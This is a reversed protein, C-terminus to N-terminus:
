EIYDDYITIVYLEEGDHLENSRGIIIATDAKEKFDLLEELTNFEEIKTYNWDSAKRIVAKM